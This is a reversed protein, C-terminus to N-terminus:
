FEMSSSNLTKVEDLIEKQIGSVHRKFSEIYPRLSTKDPGHQNIELVLQSLTPVKSPDFSDCTNPDIPICVKGTKPHVCFPAKLLHNMQTSVKEDLRPYLHAFVLEQFLPGLRKAAIRNQEVEFFLKIVKSIINWKDPGNLSSAISLKEKILSRLKADDIMSTLKTVHSDYSLLDQEKIIVNEFIPNLISHARILSPHLPLQLKVPRLSNNAGGKYLSFFKVLKERQDSDFKRVVPDSIWCHVGRRGSFVWMIHKFGFDEVLSTHLVKIAASIFGWCQKCVQANSCCKRVDDYDTMDIDFVFEREIPFFKGVAAKM